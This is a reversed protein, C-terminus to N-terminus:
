QTTIQLGCLNRIRPGPLLLAPGGAEALARFYAWGPEITSDIWGDSNDLQAIRLIANNELYAISQGDPSVMPMDSPYPTSRILQCYVARLQLPGDGIPTLNLDRQHPAGCNIRPVQQAESPYSVTLMGMLVLSSIRLMKLVM